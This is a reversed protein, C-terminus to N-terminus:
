GGEAAIAGSASVPPYQAYWVVEDAPTPALVTFQTTVPSAPFSRGLFRLSVERLQLAVVPTTAAAPVPAPAASPAPGPGPPAVSEARRASQPGTANAVQVLDLAASGLVVDLVDEIHLDHREGLGALKLGLVLEGAPSFACLLQASLTRPAAFAGPSGLALNYLLGVTARTQPSVQPSGDALLVLPEFGLSAVTLDGAPDFLLQAPRLPLSGVLGGPRVQNRSPDGSTQPVSTGDFTTPATLLEFEPVTHRARPPSSMRLALNSFVLADYNFLDIAPIENAFSFSGWFSFQSVETTATSSVPAWQVKDITVSSLIEFLLSPVNRYSFTFTHAESNIFSYSGTEGEGRSQYVGDLTLLNPAPPAPPPNQSAPALPLNFLENLALAIQCGFQALASNRFLARLHNVLFGYSGAADFLVGSGPTPNEYDVMAGVASRAVDLAGSTLRVDNIQIAIHFAVLDEEPIGVLVGGIAPPVTGMASNLVLVGSWTPDDILRVFDAYLSAEALEAVDARAHAILDRLLQQTALPDANFTDAEQWADLREVLTAISEGGLKVVLGTTDAPLATPDDAATGTAGTANTTGSADTTGSPALLRPAFEWGDLTISGRLALRAPPPESAGTPGERTAVLFVQQSQLALLADGAIRELTLTQAVRVAQLTQTASDVGVLLGHPDTSWTTEAATDGRRGARAAVRGSSALSPSALTSVGGPSALVAARGPAALIAARRAPALARTDLRLYEELVARSPLEGLGAFPALPAPASPMLVAIKSSPSPWLQLPAPGLLTVPAAGRAGMRLGRAGALATDSSAPAFLPAQQPASRYAVQRTSSSASVWSTATSADLTDGPESTATALSPDEKVFAPCGSVFTLAADSSLSLTETGVTGCVLQDADTTGAWTAHGGRLSSGAVRADFSGDLVATLAGRSSPAPPLSQPCDLLVVGAGRSPNLAVAQGRPTRLWSAIPSGAIFSLRTRAPDTPRAPDLSASFAIISSWDPLHLVPFRLCSLQRAASVEGPVPALARRRREPSGSIGSRKMAYYRLALDLHLEDLAETGKVVVSDLLMCGAQSGTLPLSAASATSAVPHGNTIFALPGEGGTMAFAPADQDDSIDVYLSTYLGLTYNSGLHLNAGSGGVRGQHTGTPPTEITVVDAEFSALPADVDKVWVLYPLLQPTPPCRASLWAWATVVFASASAPAHPAFLFYGQCSTWAYSALMTDGGPPQPFAQPFLFASWPDRDTGQPSVFLSLSEQSQVYYFAM